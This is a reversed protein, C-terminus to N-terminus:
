DVTKLSHNIEKKHIISMVEIKQAFCAMDKTYIEGFMDHFSLSLDKLFRQYFKDPRGYIKKRSFEADSIGPGTCYYKFSNCCSKNRRDLM